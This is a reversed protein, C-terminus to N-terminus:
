LCVEVERWGRGPEAQVDAREEGGDRLRSRACWYHNARRCVPPSALRDMGDCGPPDPAAEGPQYRRAGSHAALDAAQEGQSDSQAPLHYRERSTQSTANHRSRVQTKGIYLRLASIDACTAILIIRM